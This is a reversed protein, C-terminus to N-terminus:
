NPCLRSDNAPPSSDRAIFRIDRLQVPPGEQILFAVDVQDEKADYHVDYDLKARLFGALVYVNRLRVVDRQLEIPTFPHNGPSVFPLWGFARRLGGPETLAIHPRLDRELLTQGGTFRFEISKVQTKPGVGTLADQGAVPSGAVLLALALATAVRESRM